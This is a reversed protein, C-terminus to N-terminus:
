KGEAEKRMLTYAEPDSTFLQELMELGVDQRGAQRMVPGLENSPHAATNLKCTTLLEWFWERGTETSVLQHLANKLREDKRKGAKKAKEVDKDDGANYTDNFAQRLAATAGPIDDSMGRVGM